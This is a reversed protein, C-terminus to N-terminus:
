KERSFEERRFIKEPFYSYLYYVVEWIDPFPCATLILSKLLKSMIMNPISRLGKSETSGFLREEEVELGDELLDSSLPIADQDEVILLLSDDGFLEKFNSKEEDVDLKPDGPDLGDVGKGFYTYLWFLTSFLM